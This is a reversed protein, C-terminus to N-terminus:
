CLNANGAMGRRFGLQLCGARLRVWKPAARLFFLQDHLSRRVDAQMRREVVQM